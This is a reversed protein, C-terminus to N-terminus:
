ISFKGDYITEGLTIRITYDGEPLEAENMMVSGYSNITSTACDVVTGENNYINVEITGSFNAVTTIIIDNELDVFLRTARPMRPCGQQNTTQMKVDIEGAQCPIIITMLLLALMIHKM